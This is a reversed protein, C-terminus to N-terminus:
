ATAGASRKKSWAMFDPETIRAWGGRKPRTAKLAGRKIAQGVAQASVGAAKAAEGITMGEVGVPKAPAARKAPKPKSTKRAVAKPSPKPAVARAPAPANSLVLAGTVMRNPQTTRAMASVAARDSSAFIVGKARMVAYITIFDFRPPNAM